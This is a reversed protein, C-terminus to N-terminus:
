RGAASGVLWLILPNSSQQVIHITISVCPRASCMSAGHSRCQDVIEGGSQRVAVQPEQVGDGVAPHLAGPADLGVEEDVSEGAAVVHGGARIM